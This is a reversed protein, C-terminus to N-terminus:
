ESWGSCTFGKRRAACSGRTRSAARRRHKHISFGNQNPFFRHNIAFRSRIAPKGFIVIKHDSIAIVMDTEIGAKQVRSLTGQKIKAAPRARDRGPDGACQAGHSAALGNADNADITGACHQVDGRRTVRADFPHFAIQPRRRDFAAEIKCDGTVIRQLVNLGCVQLLCKLPHARQKGCGCAKGEIYISGIESVDADWLAIAEGAFQNVGVASTEFNPFVRIIALLPTEDGNYPIQDVRSALVLRRQGLCSVSHPLVLGSFDLLRERMGSKFDDLSKAVEVTGYVPLRGLFLNSNAARNLSM